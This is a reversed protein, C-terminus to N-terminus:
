GNERRAATKLRSFSDFVGEHVVSKVDFNFMRFTGELIFSIGFAAIVTGAGIKAGLLWGILLVGGEIVGRVTGVPLRRARKALAVMLSDRPGCGMATKIYFYSGVCLVFQGALMMFVGLWFNQAQPIINAAIFFDTFKGILLTNLITGVGIKEKLIVDVALIALGTFVVVNGFSVGSVHSVGMSFAEWPALGINAQIGLYSGFAFLFLGCVLVATRKIYGTVGAQAASNNNM